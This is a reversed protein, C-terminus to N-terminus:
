KVHERPMPRTMPAFRAGQPQKEFVIVSDYFTMSSTSQTFATIPIAERTFVANLSDILNKAHEIFTGDRKLGGGYEDWYCTHLDEVMYVGRPGVRPYLMDFTKTLHEMRHSGDDLVIDFQPYRSLIGNIVAPDDQSGIFIEIGEAEYAKCQPNIDLGVVRAGPGLYEKWMGLSGGGAVGIELMTPSKGRFREFHREYIDFYHGWKHLQKYGNNLFFKHLFGDSM